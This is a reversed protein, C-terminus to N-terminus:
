RRVTEQARSYRGVSRLSPAEELAVRLKELRDAAEDLGRGSLVHRLATLTPDLHRLGPDQPLYGMAGRISVSGAAPPAGGSLIKLLSTKGAGNRGVLGAKDGAHLRFSAGALIPIGAVEMTLDTVELM